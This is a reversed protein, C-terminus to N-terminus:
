LLCCKVLDSLVHSTPTSFCSQRPSTLLPSVLMLKLDSKWPHPIQFVIVPVSFDLILFLSFFFLFFLSILFILDMWYRNGSTYGPNSDMNAQFVALHMQLNCPIGNKNTKFPFLSSVLLGCFYWYSPYSIHKAVIQLCVHSGLKNDVCTPCTLCYCWRRCQTHWLQWWWNGM